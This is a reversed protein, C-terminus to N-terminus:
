SATPEIVHIEPFLEFDKMNFTYIRRVGNALMTAVLQVDFVCQRAVPHCLAVWCPHGQHVPPLLQLFLQMMLHALWKM